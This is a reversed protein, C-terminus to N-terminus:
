KKLWIRQQYDRISRDSSFMGLRATNLIASRLWADQNLYAEGIKQQANVYSDFDALVLFPDHKLLSDLMLKFMQKDGHCVKGKTLFDMASKLVPNRKYYDHPKYGKALLERVSEVTHGFIFVNEEGVMEAIEVNAGDLTGLTLAGNLALKMNGTGSAEKGAMSIQESVDAAPIIKEALSVRYDPLFAVQLRDKMAKDNNIVEAVNNIAHIINKALYYGPAAKGAFVFVRPTYDQNPNAKLSQYTAIINLLNLHQRKYEHFRKIQIDFIADTNVTFGLTRQIEDALVVKNHHKIARYEERFAADDVFKEVGKLLELDKAWDKKLTKDLLASLKPNAQQIWRRPTIGNTVNCFKTPFLKHYEPFLDSVVLDSHIQAVGNVKFCTVVCLNAMRVRYDFLIALKKWVKPDAGFKSRVKEHFLNNIKEVIQFHRPLLQKFLRQDWQELAEPLLTHNTYAFTHSCIKWADDWSLDHEDLLVRMLEPIALTPHTDNLQIVQYKAFDKLAHGEAFHRALIDAVSCACHFYQQMLRLKQGAKHNDNPYLVQTLATANVITKDANLFKGDNFLALDFSQESDAQWLRLPQIVDNKYGVIPLDFAKGQIILKPEWAYKDGKIPTIKGGFGINQTKSPNYRHWPYSNRSWLDASEKQMGDEFSQKFLGYQYHLGYGTANQGLAAMSDLFCAALRGLGGNGLAPDREQELVDVLEVDYKALYAKIDDYYGLNMLNNGTIRGILFEMSLYNVHHGSKKAAPKGYALELTGEAIVRYWQDLAFQQPSQVDFYRCYKKVIADFANDYTRQKPM